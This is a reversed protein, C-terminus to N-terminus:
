GISMEKEKPMIDEFYNKDQETKPFAIHTLLLLEEKPVKFHEPFTKWIDSKRSHSIFIDVGNVDSLNYRKLEAKAYHFSSYLTICKENESEQTSLAFYAAYGKEDLREDLYKTYECLTQTPTPEDKGEKKLKATYKQEFTDLNIVKKLVRDKM